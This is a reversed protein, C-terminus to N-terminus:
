AKTLIDGETATNGVGTFLNEGVLSSACDIASYQEYEVGGVSYTIYFVAYRAKGPKTNRVNYINNHYLKTIGTESHEYVFDNIMADTIMKKAATDQGHQKLFIYESLNELSSAYKIGYSTVMFDDAQAATNGDETIDLQLKWTFTYKGDNERVLKQGISLTFLAPDEYGDTLTVTTLITRDAHGVRSITVAVLYEGAKTFTPATTTFAHGDVSYKVVDGSKTGSVTVLSQASGNVQATGGTVTVDSITATGINFTLNETRTVYNAGSLRVTVTHATETVNNFSPKETTYEGGDLSYEAVAGQPLGSISVTHNAGDYLGEYGGGVTVNDLTAKNITLTVTQTYTNYLPNTAKVTVKYQGAQSFVPMTDYVIGDYTYTITDGDLKTLEGLSHYTGFAYTVTKDSLATRNGNTKQITLKVTGYVTTYGPMTVRYASTYTGPETYEPAQATYAAGDGGGSNTSYSVLAGTPATITASHPQGDYAVTVDNATIGTIAGLASSNNLTTLSFPNNGVYYPAMITNIANTFSKQTADATTFTYANSTYKDPANIGTNTASAYGMAVRRSYFYNYKLNWNTTNLSGPAAATSSPTLVFGFHVSSSGPYNFTTFKTSDVVRELPEFIVNGNINVKMQNMDGSIAGQDVACTNNRYLAISRQCGFFRNDSIVLKCKSFDTGANAAQETLNMNVFAGSYGCRIITNDIYRVDMSVNNRINRIYNITERCSEFRNGQVTYIGYGPTTSQHAVESGLWLPCEMNVFRNTEIVLGNLNRAFIGRTMFQRETNQGTQEFLNHAITGMKQSQTNLHIHSGNTMNTARGKFINHTIDLDLKYDVIPRVSTARNDWFLLSAQPLTGTFTFGKVTISDIESSGSTNFTITGNIIAEENRTNNTWADNRNRVFPSNNYNPGLITVSSNLTYVNENYIGGAVYLICGDGANVTGTLDSLQDFGKVQGEIFSVNGDGHVFAVTGVAGGIDDDVYYAKAYTSAVRTEKYIKVPYVDSTLSSKLYYITRGGKINTIHSGLATTCAENAYLTGGKPRIVIDSADGAVLVQYAGNAFYQNVTNDTQLIPKDAGTYTITSYITDYLTSSNATNYFRIEFKNVTNKLEVTNSCQTGNADFIKYTLNSTAPAIAYTYSNTNVKDTHTGTNKDYTGPTITVNPRYNCYSVYSFHDSSSSGNVSERVGVLKRCDLYNTNIFVHDVSSSSVMAELDAVDASSRLYAHPSACMQQIQIYSLGAKQDAISTELNCNYDGTAVVPYNAAKSHIASSLLEIQKTRLMKALILDNADSSGSVDHVISLHTNFVFIIQNTEKDKLKAWQYWRGNDTRSYGGNSVTIDFNYCGSDMLDFRSTRYYIILGAAITMTSPGGSQQYLKVSSYTSSLNADLKAPWDYGGQNGAEQIGLIDPDYGKIQSVTTNLRTANDNNGYDEYSYSFKDLINFTMTTLETGLDNKENDLKDYVPNGAALAFISCMSLMMLAACLLAVVKTFKRKM